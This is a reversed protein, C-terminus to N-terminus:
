VEQEGKQWQMRARGHCCSAPQVTRVQANVAVETWASGLGFHPPMPTHGGKAKLQDQHCKVSVVLIRQHWLPPSPTQPRMSWVPEECHRRRASSIDQESSCSHPTFGSQGCLGGDEQCFTVSRQFAGACLSERSESLCSPHHLFGHTSVSM